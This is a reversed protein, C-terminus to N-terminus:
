EGDSVIVIDVYSIGYRSGQEADCLGRINNEIMESKGNYYLTFNQSAAIIDVAWWCFIHDKLFSLVNPIIIIM